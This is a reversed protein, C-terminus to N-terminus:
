KSLYDIHAKASTLTIHESWDLAVIYTTKKDDVLIIYDLYYIKRMFM